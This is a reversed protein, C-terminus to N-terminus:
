SIEPFINAAKCRRSELYAAYLIVDPEPTREVVDIGLLESYSHEYRIVYRNKNHRAFAIQFNPM